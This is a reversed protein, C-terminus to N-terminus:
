FDVTSDRPYDFSGVRPSRMRTRPSFSTMRHDATGHLDSNRTDFQQAVVERWIDCDIVLTTGAKLLGIRHLYYVSKVVQGAAAAFLQEDDIGVMDLLMAELAERTVAFQACQFRRGIYVAFRRPSTGRYQDSTFDFTFAATSAM